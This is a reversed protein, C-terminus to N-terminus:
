SSTAQIRLTFSARATEGAALTRLGMGSRLANPPAAMPEFCICAANLPAFVQACPYGALFEVEVRRGGAEVAFRGPEAVQDFADDFEQEGLAFRRAPWARDPGVPIQRSDLALRRM